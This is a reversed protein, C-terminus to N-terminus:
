LRLFQPDSPPVQGRWSKAIILSNGKINKSILHMFNGIFQHEFAKLFLTPKFHRAGRGPKLHKRRDQLDKLGAIVQFSVTYHLLTTKSELESIRLAVSLYM